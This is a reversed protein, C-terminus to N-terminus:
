VFNKLRKFLLPIPWWKARAVETPVLPRIAPEISDSVVPMLM